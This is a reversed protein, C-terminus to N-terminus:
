LVREGSRLRARLELVELPKALFEDAEADYAELVDERRDRATLIIIYVYPGASARVRRCVELGDAGPMMWDLIALRPGDAALLADIAETGNACVIVSYGLRTLTGELVRRSVADDDAILVDM